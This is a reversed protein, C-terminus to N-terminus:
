SQKRCRGARRKRIQAAALLVVVLGTMIGVPGGGVPRFKLNRGRPQQAQGPAPRRAVQPQKPRARVNAVPGVQRPESMEPRITEATKKRLESLRSALQQQQRRDRALRLANRRDIRWRQYESDNELVLFSTYETAISYGEGLRVIEAVIEGNPGSESLVDALRQVKHWAWMREIEPDGGETAPLDIEVSRSVAAGAIEGRITVKVPGGGRYRGYLRVPVGHYLNGLTPPELDYVREDALNIQLNTMAPRILKRRFARAQRDFDDGHSIFAALGGAERALQKLLPRNVDNGVGVCFVRAGPPRERILRVLEAREGQETMGDSLIVVNLTRDSDAYRYAASLAPHLETGGRAVQSALFTGAESRSQEDAETLKAFLAGPNVNFTIVDFRDAAGLADIFAGVSRRSLGLKSDHGMSGSIDLVFVYDMGTEDPELEPGATLMMCFYGDEDAARSSVLDLGTVPRALHYALVVDRSLDGEASELSAQYYTDSHKVVVFRDGHSTSAMEALPVQSTAQVNLAFRGTVKSDPGRSSTALPYVYSAWDHDVDLEQYYSIRVRQEARPAIPFIRMEFTKYDTQELLGPDRKRRKYSDYIERARKKEVVEGVMEKGNIWMSFNAVSADKPVPFTYLAEVQRDETNRFVQTVTTVAIQNNITVDVTHEQIELIGGFGDNAMLLGAAVAVSPCCTLGFAAALVVAFWRRAPKSNMTSNKM